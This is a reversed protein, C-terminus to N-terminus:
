TLHLWCSVLRGSSKMSQRGSKTALRSIDAPPVEIRAIYQKLNELKIQLEETLIEKNEPM